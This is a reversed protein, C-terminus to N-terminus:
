DFFRDMTMSLREFEREQLVRAVDITKSVVAQMSVPDEMSAQVRTLLADPSSGALPAVFLDSTAYAVAATCLPLMGSILFDVLKIDSKADFYRQAKPSLHTPLPALGIGGACSRLFERYSAFDLSPIHHLRDFLRLHEDDFRGLLVAEYRERNALDALRRIFSPDDRLVYPRDGSAWVIRRQPKPATPLAFHACGNKIIVIEGALSPADERLCAALKASTVTVVSANQLCWEIRNTTRSRTNIVFDPPSTLLDDLDYFIPVHRHQRLFRFQRTSVNRQCWLHTFRHSKSAGILNMQRDAIQYDGIIGRALLANLIPKIRVEGIFHDSYLALVSPRSLGASYALSSHSFFMFQRCARRETYVKGGRRFM